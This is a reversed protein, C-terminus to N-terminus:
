DNPVYTYKKEDHDYNCLYLEFSFLTLKKRM